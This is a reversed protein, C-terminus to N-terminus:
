ASETWSLLRRAVEKKGLVSLSEWLDPTTKSALAAIRLIMTLDGTRGVYGGQKFEEGSTAFGLSKGFAKVDDFWADKGLSPDYRDAYLALVESRVEKSVNEPFAPAGARIRDFVEPFFPLLQSCVDSFKAFRKPDKESLREINMAKHALDPHRAIHSALDEDMTEAWARVSKFFDDKSLTSVRERSVSDLKALDFLSGSKPFRASDFRYDEFAKGPNDLRWGEYNSDAINGLYDKLAEVPYGLQFFYEVNAEPDKRKSLKRKNGDETKMLHACHLYKPAPLELLEFLQLHLPLSPLWEEGRLVHTTGMLVDDVVHALHYTPIGDRKLLVVDLYNDEM